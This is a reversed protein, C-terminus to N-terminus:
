WNEQNEDAAMQVLRQFERLYSADLSRLKVVVAALRKEPTHKLSEILHYRDKERNAVLKLVVWGAFSAYGLGEAVGLEAPSPTSPAYDPDRPSKGGEPVVNIEVSENGSRLELAHWGHKSRRRIEFGETACEALFDDLRDRAVVVDIGLTSAMSQYHIGALGGVIAVPSQMRRSVADLKALAQAFINEDADVSPGNASGSWNLGNQVTRMIAAHRALYDATTSWASHM